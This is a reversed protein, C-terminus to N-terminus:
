GVRLIEVFFVQNELVNGSSDDDMTGIFVIPFPGSTFDIAKLGPIFAQNDFEGVCYFKGTEGEERVVLEFTIKWGVTDTAITTRAPSQAMEISGIKLTFYFNYPTSGTYSKGYSTVRVIDGVALDGPINSNGVRTALLDTDDLTEVAYGTSVQSLTTRVRGDSRMPYEGGHEDKYYFGDEKPYLKVNGEAPTSPATEQVAWEQNFNKTM